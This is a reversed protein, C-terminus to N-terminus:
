EGDEEEESDGEIEMNAREAEELAKALAAEEEAGVATPAMKITMDGGRAKIEIEIKELAKTLLDIGIDQV